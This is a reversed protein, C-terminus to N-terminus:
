FGKNNVASIDTRLLVCGSRAAVAHRRAADRKLVTRKLLAGSVDFANGASEADQWVSRLCALVGPSLCHCLPLGDLSSCLLDPAAVELVLGAVVEAAEAEEGSLTLDAGADLAAKAFYSLLVSIALHLYEPDLECTM